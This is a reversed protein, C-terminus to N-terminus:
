PVGAAGEGTRTSIPRAHWPRWRSQPARRTASLLDPLGRRVPSGSCRQSAGNHRGEVRARCQGPCLGRAAVIRGPREGGTPGHRPTTVCACGGVAVRFTLLFTLQFRYISFIGTFDIRIPPSRRRWFLGRWEAFIKALGSCFRMFISVSGSSVNTTM